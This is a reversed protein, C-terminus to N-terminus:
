CVLNALEGFDVIEFRRFISLPKIVFGGIACLFNLRPAVVLTGDGYELADKSTLCHLLQASWIGYYGGIFAFLFASVM